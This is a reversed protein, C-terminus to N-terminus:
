RQPHHEQEDGCAPLTKKGKGRLDLAGQKLRKTCLGSLPGRRSRGRSLTMLCTSFSVIQFVLSSDNFRTKPTNAKLAKRALPLFRLRTRKHPKFVPSSRVAARCLTCATAPRRKTANWGIGLVGSTNGM